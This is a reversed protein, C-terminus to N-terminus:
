ETNSTTPQSAIKKLWRSSIRTFLCRIRTTQRIKAPAIQFFWYEVLNGNGFEYGIRLAIDARKRLDGGAASGLFDKRAVCGNFTKNGLAKRVRDIEERTLKKGFVTLARWTAEVVENPFHPSHSNHPQPGRVGDHLSSHM